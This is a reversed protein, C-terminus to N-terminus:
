AGAITFKAGSKQLFASMRNSKCNSSIPVTPDISRRSEHNFPIGATYADAWKASMLRHGSVTGTLLRTVSWHGNQASMSHPQYLGECRSKRSRWEPM